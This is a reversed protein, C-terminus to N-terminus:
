GQAATGREVRIRADVIVAGRSLVIVPNLDMEAIEPHAEVLASVRLLVEELAAVDLPPAGRYGDLLPYTALSRVMQAADVDTLPTIRVSVDKLLETQTGGVACAVVPGFLRDHV